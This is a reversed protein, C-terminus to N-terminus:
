DPRLGDALRTFASDLHDHLDSDPDARHWCQIAVRLTTVATAALQRVYPDEQEGGTRRAVGDALAQELDWSALAVRSVLEPHDRLVVAQDRWTPAAMATDITEGLVRHVVSLLSEAAPGDVIRRATSAVTPPDWPVLVEEKSAFYNFFTRASVDAAACIDEVTVSVPGHERFLRVAAQQLAQRTARKKRERLGGQERPPVDGSARPMTTRSM